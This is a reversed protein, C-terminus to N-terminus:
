SIQGDLVLRVRELIEVAKYPKQIVEKVGDKLLKSKKDFEIYGSALIVRVSSDIKQIEYFMRDGSIEPIGRDSLILSVDNKRDNYLEIAEKGNGTALVAYGKGEFLIEVMERLM